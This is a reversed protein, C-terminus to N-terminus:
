NNDDDEFTIMPPQTFGSVKAYYGKIPTDTEINDICFSEFDVFVIYHDNRILDKTTNVFRSKVKLIYEHKDTKWFPMRMGEDNISLKAKMKTKVQQDIVKFYWIETNYDSEKKSLFEVLLDDVHIINNNKTPRGRKAKSM